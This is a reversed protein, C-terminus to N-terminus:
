SYLVIKANIVENKPASFNLKNNKYGSFKLDPSFDLLFWKSSNTQRKQAEDLLSHVLLARAARANDELPVFFEARPRSFAMMFAVDANFKRELLGKILFDLGSPPKQDRPAVPYGADSVSIVEIM